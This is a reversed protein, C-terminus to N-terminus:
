LQYPLEGLRQQLDKRRERRRFFFADRHKHALVVLIFVVVPWLGIGILVLPASGPRPDLMAAEPWFRGPLTWPSFLAHAACAGAIYVASAGLVFTWLSYFLPIRAVAVEALVVAALGVHLHVECAARLGPRSWPSAADTEPLLAVLAGTTPDVTAYAAGPLAARARVSAAEFVLWPLLQALGFTVPLLYAAALVVRPLPLLRPRMWGHAVAVALYLALGIWAVGAMSTLVVFRPLVRLTIGLTGLIYALAAMRWGLLVRRSVIHSATWLKRRFASRHWRLFFLLFLRQPSDIERLYHIDGEDILIVDRDTTAPGAAAELRTKKGGEFTCSSSSTSATEGAAANSLATTADQSASATSSSSLSASDSAATAATLPPPTPPPSSLRRQRRHGSPPRAPRGAELTSSADSSSSGHVFPVNEPFLTDRFSGPAYAVRDLGGVVVECAADDGGDGMRSTRAGGGGFWSHDSLASIDSVDSLDGGDDDEDEYYAYEEDNFSLLSSSTSAVVSAAPSAPRSLDRHPSLRREAFRVRRGAAGARRPRHASVLSSAFPAAMLPRQSASSGRRRSDRMSRRRPSPTRSRRQSAAREVAADTATASPAHSPPASPPAAVTALDAVAADTAVADWPIPDHPAPSETTQAPDPSEARPASADPLSSPYAYPHNLPSTSSLSSWSTSSSCTSCSSASTSSSSSSSSSSPGPRPHAESSAGSASEKAGSPSSTLASSFVHPSAVADMSRRLPAASAEAGDVLADLRDVVSLPPASRPPADPSPVPAASPSAAAPSGAAEHSFYPSLPDGASATEAEADAASTAATLTPSVTMASEAPSHPWGPRLFSADADAAHAHAHAAAGAAPPYRTKSPPTAPASRPGGADGAGAHRLADHLDAGQPTPGARRPM